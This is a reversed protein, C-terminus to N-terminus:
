TGKYEQTTEQKLMARSARLKELIEERNALYHARRQISISEKNRQYIVSQLNQIQERHEGRYQQQSARCGETKAYEKMTRTPLQRNLSPRSADFHKRLETRAELASSCSISSLRLIHWNEVGGHQRIFDCVYWTDKKCRQQFRDCLSSHSCTTYGLFFDPILPDNCALKYILTNSYDTPM